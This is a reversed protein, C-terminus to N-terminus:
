AGVACRRRTIDRRRPQIISRPSTRIHSFSHQRRPRLRPTRLNLLLLPYRVAPPALLSSRRLWPSPPDSPLYPPLSRKRTHPRPRRGNSQNERLLTQSKKDTRSRTQHFSSFHSSLNFLLKKGATRYNRGSTKSIHIACTTSASSTSTPTNPSANKSTPTSNSPSNKARKPPKPCTCRNPASPNRCRPYSKTHHQRTKRSPKTEFKKINLHYPQTPALIELNAQCPGQTLNVYCTVGRSRSQM